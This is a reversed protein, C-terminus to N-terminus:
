KLTRLLFFHLILSFDYWKTQDYEENQLHMFLLCLRVIGNKGVFLMPEFDYNIRKIILMTQLWVLELKDVYVIHM